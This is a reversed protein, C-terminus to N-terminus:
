CSEIDVSVLFAPVPGGGGPLTISESLETDADPDLVALTDNLLETLTRWAQPTGADPAILYVNVTVTGGGGLLDHAVSRGVVWACPPNLNRPDVSARVGGAALTAVVQDLVGAVDIM